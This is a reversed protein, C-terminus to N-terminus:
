KGAKQPREKKARQFETWEEAEQRIPNDPALGPVIVQVLEGTRPDRRDTGDADKLTVLHGDNPSGTFGEPLLTIPEMTAGSVTRSKEFYAM